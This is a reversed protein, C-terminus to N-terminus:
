GNNAEGNAEKEDKTIQEDCLLCILDEDGIDVMECKKNLCECIACREYDKHKFELVKM